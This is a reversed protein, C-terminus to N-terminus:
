RMRRRGRPTTKTIFQKLKERENPEFHMEFTVEGGDKLGNIYADDKVVSDFSTVDITELPAWRRRTGDELLFHVEGTGFIYNIRRRLPHDRVKGRRRSRRQKTSLRSM